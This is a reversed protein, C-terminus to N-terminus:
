DNATQIDPDVLEVERRGVNSNWTSVEVDEHILGAWCNQPNRRAILDTMRIGGWVVSRKGPALFSYVNGTAPDEETYLDDATGIAWRWPYDVKATECHIGVRWAGSQEYEGLSAAIQDQQYVTGPPPGSTRLPVESYNEITLKFLLVDGIPLTVTALNLVQPDDPPAIPDGLKEVTSFYREEYPAAAFVVDVGVTQPTIEALPKGGDKITLTATRQIRQGEDDQTEAFVTYTGDPPPDSGLDVGGEYDFLHRGAEGIKRREQREAVYYREGAENELYITLEADKTLYVQIATRDDVGDQNPTFVEPLVTFITMEPLPSDADQVRLVGTQEDQENEGEASLRWTYAGDALLRRLVEGAIEEGPLTFGDVVGSFDIQYDGKIRRQRDRFVYERGDEGTFVLSVLANRSLTYSFVVVDMDNDANPTIVDSSFEASVILPLDPQLIAQGVIVVLGVVIVAVIITLWIPIRM